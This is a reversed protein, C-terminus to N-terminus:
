DHWEKFLKSNHTCSIKKSNYDYDTIFFDTTPCFNDASKARALHHDRNEINYCSIDNALIYGLIDRKKNIKKINKIKEKIIM